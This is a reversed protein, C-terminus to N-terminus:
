SPTFLNSMFRSSCSKKSSLIYFVTTSLDTNLLFVLGCYSDWYWAPYSAGKVEVLRELMSWGCSNLKLDLRLVDGGMAVELVGVDRNTLREFYDIGMLYVSEYSRLMSSKSPELM